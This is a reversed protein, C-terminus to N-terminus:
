KFSIKFYKPSFNQSFVCFVNFILIKLVSTLRKQVRRLKRGHGDRLFGAQSRQAVLEALRRHRHELVFVEFVSHGSHRGRGVVANLVIQVSQLRVSSRENVSREPLLSLLLLLKNSELHVDCFVVNKEIHYRHYPIKPKLAIMFLIKLTLVCWIFHKLDTM